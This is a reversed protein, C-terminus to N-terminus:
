GAVALSDYTYRASVDFMDKVLWPTGQADRQFFPSLLPDSPRHRFLTASATDGPLYDRNGPMAQWAAWIRDVNCHNLYFVPDNPSTAPGMDGGIWVHVLNHLNPPGALSQQWGEVGNRFGSTRSDSDWPDGDYRTANLTAGVAAKTPLRWRQTSQPRVSRLRRRLPRDVAFLNGARDSVVAVRFATGAGFKGDQVEGNGDGDGGIGDPDTWLDAEPQADPPLEGDHAWDWYPLGFEPRGLVRAINAELLMLMLRHWPLFVPGQHAANRAAGSPTATMMTRYHWLVFVDYTSLPRPGVAPSAGAIGLTATTVPQGQASLVIEAKLGNVGDIFAARAAPDKVVDKRVVAGM